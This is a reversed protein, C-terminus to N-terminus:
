HPKQGESDGRGFGREVFEPYLAKVPRPLGLGIREASRV